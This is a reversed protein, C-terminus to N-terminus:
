DESLRQCMSDMCEIMYGSSSEVKLKDFGNQEMHGILLKMVTRQKDIMLDM